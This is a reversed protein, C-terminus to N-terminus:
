DDVNPELNYVKRYEQSFFCRVAFINNHFRSPLVKLSDPGDSGPAKIVPDNRPASEYEVSGSWAGNPLGRPPNPGSGVCGPAALPPPRSVLLPTSFFKSPTERSFFIHPEAQSV